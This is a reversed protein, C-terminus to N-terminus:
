SIFVCQIRELEGVVIEGIRRDMGKKKRQVIGLEPNHSKSYCLPVEVDM